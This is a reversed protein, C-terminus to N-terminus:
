ATAAASWLLQLRPLGLEGALLLLQVRGVLLKLLFRLQELVLLLLDFRLIDFDFHRPARDLLLGLLERQRRLVLGLEKGVHGVLKPRREVRQEDQRLQQGVVRLAVEVLLLDLERPRDIRRSRVKEVEDVVDEVQRLDFGSRHRDFDALHRHLMQLLVHLPGEALESGVLAEVEVDLEVALQRLGDAGVLLPQLLDHEVQQRVGELERRLAADREANAAGVLPQLGVCGTSRLASRAISIATVSVPM